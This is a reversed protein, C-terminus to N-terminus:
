IADSGGSIIMQAMFKTLHNDPDGVGSFFAIKPTIYHPSVLEDMIEQSFPKPDDKSSFNLSRERTSRRGHQHLSKWLEENTKHLEENTQAHEEMEIQSAEIEAM